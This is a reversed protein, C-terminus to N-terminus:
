AGDPVEGVPPHLFCAVDRPAGPPPTTKEGEGPRRAILLPTEASCREMVRPCRPHFACGTPLERLDPPSGPIGLLERRAGHLKPFSHLLGDSYPHLPNEYLDSAAAREVVGGGYMVLIQDSLELLLSLDHTIFLVAFGLEARLEDLRDLIQRQMVVDLATTPEDFIVLQPSLALALAIMARQRMGGSLEHPYAGARRAPIGVMELLRAIRRRREARSADREHARIVDDLQSRLSLVPNMASMASQLVISMDSWRIRRLQEADLTALDIPEGDRGRWLISGRTVRGTGRLLRAIAFALTSKGSGSEGAIGVVEGRRVTFSADRVATVGGDASGYRVDLGRVELLVDAGVRSENVDRGTQSLAM